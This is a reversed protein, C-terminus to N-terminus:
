QIIQYRQERQSSSRVHTVPAQGVWPSSLIEGVHKSHRQTGVTRGLFVILRSSPPPLVTSLAQSEKVALLTGRTLYGRRERGPSVEGGGVWEPYHYSSIETKLCVFGM